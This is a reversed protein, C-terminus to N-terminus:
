AFTLPGHGLLAFVSHFTRSKNQPRRFPRRPSDGSVLDTCRQQRFEHADGSWATEPGSTDRGVNGFAKFVSTGLCTCRFDKRQLRIPKHLTAMDDAFSTKKLCTLDQQPGCATLWGRTPEPIQGHPVLVPGRRIELFFIIDHPKHACCQPPPTDAIVVRFLNPRTPTFIKGFLDSEQVVHAMHQRM